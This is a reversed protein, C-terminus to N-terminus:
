QAKEGLEMLKQLEEAEKKVASRKKRSVIKAKSAKLIQYAEHV